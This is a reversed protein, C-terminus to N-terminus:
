RHVSSPVSSRVSIGAMVNKTMFVIVMTERLWVIVKTHSDPKALSCQHHALLMGYELGTIVLKEGYTHAYDQWVALITQLYWFIFCKYKLILLIVKNHHWSKVWLHLGLFRLMSLIIYFTVNLFCLSHTAPPAPKIASQACKRMRLAIFESGTVGNLPFHTRLSRVHVSLLWAARKISKGPIKLFCGHNECHLLSIVALSLTFLYAIYRKLTRM